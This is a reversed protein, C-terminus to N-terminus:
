RNLVTASGAQKKYGTAMQKMDLELFLYRVGLLHNTWKGYEATTAQFHALLLASAITGLETRETIHQISEALRAHALHYYKLSPQISTSNLKSMHLSALALMAHLLAQNTLAATPLVDTWLAQQPIPIATGALIAEPTTFHREFISLSPGITLVFHCFIQPAVTDNPLSAIHMLRRPPFISPKPSFITYSPSDPNIQNMTSRSTPYGGSEKKKSLTDYRGLENFPRSEVAKEYHRFKTDDTQMIGSLSLPAIDQQTSQHLIDQNADSSPQKHMLQYYQSHRHYQEPPIETSWGSPLSLINFVFSPLQDVNEARSSSQFGTGTPSTSKNMNQIHAQNGKADFGRASLQPPQKFIM